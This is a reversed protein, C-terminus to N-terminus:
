GFCASPFSRGNSSCFMRPVGTMDRIDEFMSKSDMFLNYSHPPWAHAVTARPFACHYFVSFAYVEAVLIFRLLVVIKKEYSLAYYANEDGDSPFIVM